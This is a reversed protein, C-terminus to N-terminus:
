DPYSKGLRLVALANRAVTSVNGPMFEKKVAAIHEAVTPGLTDKTARYWDEADGDLLEEFLHLVHTTALTKPVHEFYRECASVFSQVVSADRKGFYPKPKGIKVDITHAGSNTFENSPDAARHQNNLAISLSQIATFLQEQTALSARLQENEQRVQGM